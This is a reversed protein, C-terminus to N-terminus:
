SLRCGGARRYSVRGCACTCEIDLRGTMAEVAKKIGEGQWHVIAPLALSNLFFYAGLRLVGVFAYGYTDRGGLTPLCVLPPVAPGSLGLSSM